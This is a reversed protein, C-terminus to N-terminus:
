VGEPVRTQPNLRYTKGQFQFSEITTPRGAPHTVNIGLGALVEDVFRTNAPTAVQMYVYTVERWLDDPRTSGRLNRLRQSLTERIENAAPMAGPFLENLRGRYFATFKAVDDIRQTPDEPPVDVILDPGYRRASDQGPTNNM